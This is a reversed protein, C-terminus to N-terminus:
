QLIQELTLVPLLDLTCRVTLPAATRSSPVVLAVSEGVNVLGQNTKFESMIIGLVGIFGFAWSVPILLHQQAATFDNKKHREVLLFYIHTKGHIALNREM